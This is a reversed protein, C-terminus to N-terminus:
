HCTINLLFAEILIMTVMKLHFHLCDILTPDILDLNNNTSQTTIESRYRNWSITKKFGQKVNELFKINDNISLTVASVYLKTSTIIFNIGTINNHHEILVCDKTWSLDLEIECNILPLDLSRWFNSLYKLPITVEVNLAPEPPQPEQNEDQDLDPQAPRQLTKGVIKTKYKFSEGDSANDDVDDIEDRYYNWLSGLTMSYNQNQELLNYMLMVIELDEANEILASNIKSICSKFPTNNKFAINKQAKNNENAAAALLDITGRVVIYADHYDCLDSRLM